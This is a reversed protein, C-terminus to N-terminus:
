RTRIFRGVQVSSGMSSDAILRYLYVGAPLLEGNLEITRAWGAGISSEPTNVIQRGIMDIVEVRVHATWPLDFVLQTADQFPNPFNGVVTFIGPLSTTESYVPSYVSIEFFVSATHGDADIAMYTYEIPASTAVTPTGHITRASADFSLGTPLAPYLIYSIPQSGGTAEPLMLPSIPTARPYSQNTVDGDLKLTSAPPMKVIHVRLEGSSALLGGDSSIDISRIDNEKIGLFQYVQKGTAVDWLRVSADDSYMDGSGSAIYNGDPSFIVSNVTATHGRFQRIEQGTAVNWLRIPDDKAISGPGSVLQTGDPSFAVSFVPQTHGKLQRVLEGTTVDWLRISMDNDTASALQTGDPSFAVSYIINLPLSPLTHDIRQIQEGTALNWLRVTSDLSGSALLTGDPSFAVSNVQQTHGKFQRIEQGSAVHWLRIETDATFFGSGSALFAGDPSFAVSHVSTTHGEFQRIEQGTTVDLLRLTKGESYALQTDDPSFAVVRVDTESSKFKLASQAAVSTSLIFTLLLTIISQSTM